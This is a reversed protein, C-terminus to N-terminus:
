TPRQSELSGVSGCTLPNRATQFSPKWSNPFKEEKMFGERPSDRDRVMKGRQKDTINQGVEKQLSHSEKGPAQHERGTNLLQKM